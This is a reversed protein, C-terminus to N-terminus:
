GAIRSVITGGHDLGGGPLFVDPTNEFPVVKGVVKGETGDAVARRKGKDKHAGNPFDVPGVVPKVGESEAMRLVARLTDRVDSGEWDVDSVVNVWSYNVPRPKLKSKNEKGNGHTVTEHYGSDEFPFQDKAGRNRLSRVGARFNDGATSVVRDPTDGVLTTFQADVDQRSPDRVPRSLLSRGAEWIERGGITDLIADLRIRSRNLYSMLSVISSQECEDVGWGRLREEIRRLISRRNELEREEEDDKLDDASEPTPGPLIFPVPVHAWVSWGEHILMQAAFAGPGDHARLVLARPRSDWPRDRATSRELGDGATFDQTESRPPLIPHPENHSDDYLLQPKGMTQTIQHFTRVARYAPVGCLPLLALENVTLGEEAVPFIANARSFEDGDVEDAAPLGLSHPSWAPMIPHAIRHVRRRDALIFEALAGCKQVGMMGIVWDGRKAVDKGVEWGVELVRGVFSRGPIHGVPAHRGKDKESGKPVKTGYPAGPPLSSARRPSHSGVLRADTGDLGVGWVQVLVSGSGVYAPPTRYATFGLPIDANDESTNGKGKASSREKNKSFWSVGFFSGRPKSSRKVAGSGSAIGRVVEVSAM